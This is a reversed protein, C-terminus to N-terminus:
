KAAKYGIRNGSFQGLWLMQDAQLAVSVNQMPSGGDDKAIETFKLTQTDFKGVTWGKFRPFGGQSGPVTNQGAVLLKGDPAWRLNDPCFGLKVVDKRLPGTGHSFRVFEQSGWAAVYIWQGDKSVEVGNAGAVDTGALPNVGTGSHWELIGGTTGGAFISAFGGPAKTDYFKTAVFGEGPLFAVSNGYNTEGLPVCGIWRITPKTGASNLKFVEIAERGHNVVLLTATRHGDARIAIGHAGFTSADPAGSCAPYSKLDPDGQPNQGPYLVEWTKRGADILHLKGPKRNEAMGSGVMWKTGPVLVLDEVAAPGCIFQFGGYPLCDDGPVAFCILCAPVAFILTLWIGIRNNM